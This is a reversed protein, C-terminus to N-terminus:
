REAGKTKYQFQHVIKKYETKKKTETKKLKKQDRNESKQEKQKKFHHVRKKKCFM